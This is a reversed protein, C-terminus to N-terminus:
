FSIYIDRNRIGPDIFLVMLRHRVCRTDFHIVLCNLLADMVSSKRIESSRFPIFVVIVLVLVCHSGDGVAADYEVRISTVKYFRALRENIICRGNDINFIRREVATKQELRKDEREINIHLWHHLLSHM